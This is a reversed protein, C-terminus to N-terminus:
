IRLFWICPLFERHTQPIINLAIKRIEGIETGGGLTADPGALWRGDLGPTGFQNCEDPHRNTHPHREPAEAICPNQEMGIDDDRHDVGIPLLVALLRADVRASPYEPATLLRLSHLPWAGNKAATCSDAGPGIAVHSGRLGIDATRPVGSEVRVDSEPQEQGIANFFDGFHPQPILIQFLEFGLLYIKSDINSTRREGQIL